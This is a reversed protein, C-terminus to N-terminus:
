RIGGPIGQSRFGGVVAPGSDSAAPNLGIERRFYHNVVPSAGAIEIVKIDFLEYGDRAVENLSEEPNKIATRAGDIGKATPLWSQVVKYEWKQAM